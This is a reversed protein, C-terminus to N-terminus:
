IADGAIRYAGVLVVAVGDGGDSLPLALREWTQGLQWQQRGDLTAHDFQASYTRWVPAAEARVKDYEARLLAAQGAPLEDISTGTMERRFAEVFATGYLRYVWKGDAWDVLMLHGLWPRMDIPDFDARAPVNRGRRRADWFAYLADLKKEHFEPKQSL